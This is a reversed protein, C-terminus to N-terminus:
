DNPVMAAATTAFGCKSKSIFITKRSNKERAKKLESLASSINLLLDSTQNEQYVNNSSVLSKTQSFETSNPNKSRQAPQSKMM